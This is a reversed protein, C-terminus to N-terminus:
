HPPQLLVACTPRRFHCARCVTHCSTCLGRQQITAQEGGERHKSTLKGTHLGTHLGTPRTSAMCFSQVLANVNCSLLHIVTHAFHSTPTAHCSWAALKNLTDQKAQPPVVHRSTHLNYTLVHSPVVYAHRQSGEHCGHVTCGGAM